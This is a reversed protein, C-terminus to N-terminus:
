LALSEIKFWPNDTGYEGYGKSRLYTDGNLLKVKAWATFGKGTLGDHCIIQIQFPITPVSFLADEAVFFRSPQNFVFATDTGEEVKTTPSWNMGFYRGHKAFYAQEKPVIVNVWKDALWGDVKTRIQLFTAM